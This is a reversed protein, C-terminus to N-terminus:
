DLAHLDDDGLELKVSQTIALKLYRKWDFHFM